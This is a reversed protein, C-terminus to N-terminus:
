SRFSVSSLNSIWGFSGDLGQKLLLSLDFLGTKTQAIFLSWERMSAMGTSALNGLWIHVFKLAFLRKFNDWILGSKKPPWITQVKTNSKARLERLRWRGLQKSKSHSGVNWLCKVSSQRKREVYLRWQYYPVISFWIILSQFIVEFKYLWSSHM